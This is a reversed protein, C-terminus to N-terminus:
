FTKRSPIWPQVPRTKETIRQKTGGCLTVPHRSRTLLKTRRPGAPGRRVMRAHGSSRPPEQMLLDERGFNGYAAGPLGDRDLGAPVPIAPLGTENAPMTYRCADCLQELWPDLEGERLLSYTGNAQPVRIAMTPVLLLDLGEMFRGFERTVTNNDAMMKWIAYKDYREAALYHRYFGAGAGRFM